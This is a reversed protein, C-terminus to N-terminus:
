IQRLAHQGHSESEYIRRLMVVTTKKAETAIHPGYIQQMLAFLRAPSNEIDANELESHNGAGHQICMQLLPGTATGMVEAQCFITMTKQNMLAVIRGPELRKSLALGLRFTNFEDEVGIIPPIFAIVPIDM